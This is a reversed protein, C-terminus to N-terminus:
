IMGFHTAKFKKVSREAPKFCIEKGYVQLHADPLHFRFVSSSKPITRLTNRPTVIRFCNKTEQLVIGRTGVLNTEKSQVVSIIAGHYDAKMLRQNISEWNLNDPSIPLKSFSHVGLNQRIYETWMENLPMLEEYILGHNKTLIKQGLLKRMSNNKSKTGLRQKKSKSSKHKDLIFSRKLEELVDKSDSSPLTKELYKVIFQERGEYTTVSKTVENPLPLCLNDATSSM